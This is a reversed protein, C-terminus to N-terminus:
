CSGVSVLALWTGRDAQWWAITSDDAWDVAIHLELAFGPVSGIEDFELVGREVGLEYWTPNGSDDSDAPM